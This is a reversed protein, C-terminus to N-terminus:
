RQHRGSVAPIARLKPSPTLLDARVMRPAKGTWRRVARSFASLESYGTLLAIESLPLRRQKLYMFALDRRTTEVLDKHTVGAETLARHIASPPLRLDAAIEELAPHGSALRARIATRIQDLLSPSEPAGSALRELCARMMAMLTPDRGPMPRDLSEPRFLIANTQQSFYVPAGFAREHERFDEPRPHEFHVEEPAWRTGLCERFVNLFMGLSLEADQRRELISPATIQYELRGLGDGSAVLRMVSSEQHLPFLEVLSELACGLTQASIAAYGWMGLDRPRFRNGFWLGFNDNGTSRAAGEFLACFSALRLRLTPAGAMAPAIAASAFVGEVDGGQREMDEVIGTAASALVAPPRAAEELGITQIAM